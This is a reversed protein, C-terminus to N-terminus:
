KVLKLQGREIVLGKASSKMPRGQLDFSEIAKASAEEPSLAELSLTEKTVNGYSYLKFNTFCTWYSSGTNNTALIMIALKGAKDLYYESTNMYYGAAFHAAASAMTNPVYTGDTMRKDDGHLSRNARDAMLNKLYVAASSAGIYFKAKANDTGAVYENYVAEYGGPRQFGQVDCRYTGVPMDTLAQQATASKQYFEIENYNVTGNTSVTGLWGTKGNSFDPNTLMFTLDFLQEASEVRVGALYLKAAANLNEVLPQVEAVSSAEDCQASLSTLTSVFTAETGEVVEVHPVNTLAEINPLHKKFAARAKILGSDEMDKAQQSNLILWRQRQANNAINFTASAVAGDSAAGLCVNNDSNIFWYSRASTLASGDEGQVDIRSPMLQFRAAPATNAAFSSNVYSISHGTAVNTIQYYQSAPTFSIRWAARDNQLAETAVMASWKLTGDADEVLYSNYLGCDASENKIYYKEDDEQAFSYYPLGYPCGYTPPLGDECLAQAMLSVATYQMKSGTDEHAGNVSFSTMTGSGNTAWVHTGDGTPYETTSNDWFRVLETTRIGLWQGTGSGGRLPSSSGYWLDCQGVGIAHLAEHMVTGTKQYSANPGVRMWGGYSCDATPTGSGYHVDLFLGPISTLENWYDVCEAVAANIRNNEETSGGNDYAWSITGKPLTCFKIVDGYGVTSDATMGYARAYYITAPELNEVYCIRGNNTFFKTSHLDYITPEANTTSFCFGRETIATGNATWTARGFFRTAGRVYRSDTVVTPQTGAFVSSMSFMM